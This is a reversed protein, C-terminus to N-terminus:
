CRLKVTIKNTIIKNNNIIKLGPGGQFGGNTLPAEQNFIIIIIIIIRGGRLGLTTARSARQCYILILVLLSWLPDARVPYSGM